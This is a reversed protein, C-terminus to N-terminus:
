GIRGRATFPSVFADASPGRVSDSTNFLGASYIFLVDAGSFDVFQGLMDPQVYRLDILTVTSYADLLLPSLASAFSDRFMILHRGTPPYEDEEGSSSSMRQPGSGSQASVIAAPGCMFISYPDVATLQSLDYVPFVEGPKEINDVIANETTESVLWIMRDPAINLASQGYYVGYFADFSEETFPKHNPQFGMEAALTDVVPFLKEQRWHADTKYYSEPSLDDFIRIYAIDENITERILSEMKGYDLILHGSHELYSNKDPVLTYRVNNSEDLFRQHMINIIGCLRRVSQENLPYETKFVNGGIVFIRNNDMKRLVNLDFFAKLRRFPERFAAQDVAFDDFGEMFKGNLVTEATFEPFQALRRRESRSFDDPTRFINLFFLAFIVALFSISIIKHRM